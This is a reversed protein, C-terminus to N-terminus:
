EKVLKFCFPVIKHGLDYREALHCMSIFADRMCRYQTYTDLDPYDDMIRKLTHQKIVCYHIFAEEMSARDKFILDSMVISYTNGTKEVCPPLESTNDCLSGLKGLFMNVPAPLLICTEPSYINSYGLDKDIQYTENNPQAVYWNHFNAYELWDECITASLYRPHRKLSKANYLRFEIGRWVIYARRKTGKGKTTPVTGNNTFVPKSATKIEIAEDITLDGIRVREFLNM